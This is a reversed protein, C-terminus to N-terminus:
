RCPTLSFEFSFKLQDVLQSVITDQRRSMNYRLLPSTEKGVYQRRRAKRWGRMSGLQHDHCQMRLAMAHDRCIIRSSGIPLGAGLMGCRKCLEAMHVHEIAIEQYSCDLSGAGDRYAM